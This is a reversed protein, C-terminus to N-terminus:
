YQIDVNTIRLEEFNWSGEFNPNKLYILSKETTGCSAQHVENPQLQFYVRSEDSGNCGSCGETFQVEINFGITIPTNTLNEIRLFAFEYPLKGEEIVCNGRSYSFKAQSTSSLSIQEQSYSREPLYILLTVVLFKTIQLLYNKMALQKTTDVLIVFIM